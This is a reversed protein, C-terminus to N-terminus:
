RAGRDRRTVAASPRHPRGRAGAGAQPERRGLARKVSGASKALLALAEARTVGRQKMVIAVKVRGEARGLARVADAYSCGTALMIIRVSRQRLKASTAMLDVMLNKYVKGLKVMAATSIMNLVLKEATGSKMRTSGMVAEPGVDVAIVVEAVDALNRAASGRGAASSKDAARRGRASGARPPKGQPGDPNCTIYITRAGIGKARGLAAVVFPTRRCAALGIVVDKSTVRGGIVRRAEEVRDEVGEQARFVAKRGGAIIGQFLSPKTGFTPPCEAADLVGLRGSTGAGVYFVRGGERIAGVVVEVARAIAALKRGVAPAVLRDERNLLKLIQRTTAEDLKETRPNLAETALSAIEDFIPPRRDTL